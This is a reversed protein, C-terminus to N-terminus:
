RMQDSLVVEGRGPSCSDPFTQKGFVQIREGQQAVRSPTCHVWHGGM